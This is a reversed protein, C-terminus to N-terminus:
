LLPELDAKALQDHNLTHNDLAPSVVASEHAPIVAHLDPNAIFLHRSPQLPDGSILDMSLKIPM